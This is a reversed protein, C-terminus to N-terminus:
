DKAPRGPKGVRLEIGVLAATRELADRVRPVATKASRYKGTKADAVKKPDGVGYETAIRPKSWKQVQWRVLWEFHVGTRKEPTKQWGWQEIVAAEIGGLYETVADQTAATIRAEAQERTEKSLDWPACQFVFPPISELRYEEHIGSDGYVTLEFVAADLIWDDTTLELNFKEAWRVLADRFPVHDPLYARHEIREGFPSMYTQAYRAHSLATWGLQRVDHTLSGVPMYRDHVEELAARVEPACRDLAEIFLRRAAADKRSVLAGPAYYEGEGIRMSGRHDLARGCLSAGVHHRRSERGGASGRRPAVAPPTM